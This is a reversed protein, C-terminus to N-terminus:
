SKQRARRALADVRSNYIDGDHGRVWRWSVQHPKKAELLEEWLDRNAVKGSTTKWGRKIWGPLWAEIGQQLYRSDTYITVSAPHKLTKLARIAATMEMRNNTSDAERGSIEMKGGPTIILAAWGGRGPNPDCAGDSYIIVEPLNASKV